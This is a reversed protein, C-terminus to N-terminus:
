PKKELDKLATTVDALKSEAGPFDERGCLTRMEVLQDNLVRFTSSDINARVIADEAKNLAAMCGDQDAIREAALAPRALIGALMAALLIIQLARRGHTRAPEIAEYTHM